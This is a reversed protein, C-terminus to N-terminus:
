PVSRLFRMIAEVCVFDYEDDIEYTQSRDIRMGMCRDAYFTKQELLTRTKAVYAVGYPFWAPRLDQRRSSLHEEGAWPIVKLGDMKKMLSPHEHVRGVTVLSDYGGENEILLRVAREIDGPKRLPSTPEILAVFEFYQAQMEYFNLAFEVVSFSSAEDTALHAPRLYPVDAGAARAVAATIECDTSVHVCTVNSAQLAQVVSWEVLPRGLLLKLNKGPLGKSGQRAPIVALVRPEDTM